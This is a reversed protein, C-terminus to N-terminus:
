RLCKWQSWALWAAAATLVAVASLPHDSILRLPGPLTVRETSRTTALNIAIGTLSVLCVELVVFVPTLMARWSSAQRGMRRRDPRLAQNTM